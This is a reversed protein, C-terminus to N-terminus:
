AAEATVIITVRRPDDGRRGTVVFEYPTGYLQGGPRVVEAAITVDSPAPTLHEVRVRISYSHGAVITLPKPGPSIEDHPWVFEQATGDMDDLHRAGADFRDEGTLSLALTSGDPAGFWIKLSGM